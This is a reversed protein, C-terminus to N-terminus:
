LCTVFYTYGLFQTCSLMQVLYLILQTTLFSPFFSFATSEIGRSDLDLLSVILMQRYFFLEADSLQFTLYFILSHLLMLPSVVQPRALVNEFTITEVCPGLFASQKALPKFASM